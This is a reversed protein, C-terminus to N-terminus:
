SLGRNHGGAVHVARDHEQAVFGFGFGGQLIGFHLQDLSRCSKESFLHLLLKIRFDFLQPGHLRNKVPRQRKMSSFNKTKEGDYDFLFAESSPFVKIECVNGSAAGWKKVISSIFGSQEPEDDCIAIKLKM